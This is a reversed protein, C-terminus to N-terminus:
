VRTPVKAARQRAANLIEAVTRGRLEAQREAPIPQLGCRLRAAELRERIERVKESEVAPGRGALGFRVELRRLRRSLARM